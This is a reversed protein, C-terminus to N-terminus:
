NTKAVKKRQAADIKDQRMSRINVILLLTVVVVFM